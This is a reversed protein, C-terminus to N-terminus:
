RPANYGGDVVREPGGGVPGGGTGAVV